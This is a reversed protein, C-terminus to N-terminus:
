ELLLWYLIYSCCVKRIIITFITRLIYFQWFIFLDTFLVFFLANYARACELQFQVSLLAGGNMHDPTSYRNYPSQDCCRDEEGWQKTVTSIHKFFPKTKHWWSLLTLLISITAAPVLLLAIVAAINVAICFPVFSISHNGGFESFFLAYLINRWM